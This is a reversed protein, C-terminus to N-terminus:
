SGQPIMMDEVSLHHSDETVGCGTTETSNQGCMHHRPYFRTGWRGNQVESGGWPSSRSDAEQQRGMNGLECFHEVMTIKGGCLAGNKFLDLQQVLLRGGIKKHPAFM